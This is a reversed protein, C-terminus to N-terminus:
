GVEGLRGRWSSTGIQTLHSREPSARDGAGTLVVCRVDDSDNAWGVAAVLADSMPKTVSNLKQPRNITITLVAGNLEVLIEDTHLQIV